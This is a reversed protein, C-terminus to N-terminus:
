VAASATHFQGDMAANRRMERFSVLRRRQEDWLTLRVCAFSKLLTLRGVESLEPHDKLVEPLRYFPIRSKLHHVHHVGINATFWRLIGPLHYHSSGHLSADAHSWEEDPAWYTDEFQHQVYFLWVGITAAVIATSLHILLVPLIGVAWMLSGALLAIALNTGMTGVWPPWGARMQGVPVRHQLVFTYAPGIGFLVIPSRYVRYVFRGWRSQARYENVTMTTVDGIGRQKLNGVGAHHIAHTRKWLDHPTLTVVGIVRGVWNNARRHRFFADHSCDHQIMFLRVLFLAAPISLALCLWVSVSLAAWMAIWIAILPLATVVIEAISRAVNPDRYRTLIRTWQRVDAPLPASADLDMAHVM